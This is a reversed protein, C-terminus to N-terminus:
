HLKETDRGASGVSSELREEIFQMLFEEQRAGEGADKIEAEVTLYAYNM